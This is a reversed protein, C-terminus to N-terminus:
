DSLESGLMVLDFPRFALGKLNNYDTLAVYYGSPTAVDIRDIIGELKGNCREICRSMPSDLSKSIIKVHVGKVCNVRLM